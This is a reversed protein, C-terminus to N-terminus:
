KKEDDKRMPMVIAELTDGDREIVVAVPSLGDTMYFDAVLPDKTSQGHAREFEKAAKVVRELLRLNMRFAFRADRKVPERIQSTKPYEGDIKEGETITVGELNTAVFRARGNANTSEADLAAHALVPMRPRTPISKALRDAVDIPLIFPVIPGASDGEPLEGVAPFEEMPPTAVTARLLMHGDTAETTGDAEFHVGNLNFRAADASAAHRVALHAKSYLM